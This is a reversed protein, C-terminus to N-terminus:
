SLKQSLVAAILLVSSLQLSLAMNQWQYFMAPGDVLVPMQGNLLVATLKVKEKAHPKIVLVFVLKAM